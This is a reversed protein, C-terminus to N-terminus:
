KSVQKNKKNQFRRKLICNKQEIHNLCPSYKAITCIIVETNAIYVKM